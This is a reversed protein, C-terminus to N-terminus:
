GNYKHPVMRQHEALMADRTQEMLVKLDTNKVTDAAVPPLVTIQLLQRANILHWKNGQTFDRTGDIVVPLIPVGNNKALTFAGEKFRGIQGTKSRTGEPFMIICMKNQLWASCDDIMKKISRANGRKVTVDNHLWLLQGILPIRYAERKSVWKFCTPIAYLFLIDLMSQHNSVIMYTQKKDVNELGKVRKRMFLLPAIVSRSIFTSYHHQLRQQRDFPLALLALIAAMTVHVIAAIVVYLGWFVTYFFNLLM